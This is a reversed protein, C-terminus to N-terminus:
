GIKRIKDPAYEGRPDVGEEMVPLVLGQEYLAEIAVADALSIKDQGGNKKYQRRLGILNDLGSMEGVKVEISVGEAQVGELSGGRSERMNEVGSLVLSQVFLSRGQGKEKMRRMSRLMVGGVGEDFELLGGSKNRTGEPWFISLHGGGAVGDVLSSVQEDNFKKARNRLGEVLGRLELRGQITRRSAKTRRWMEEGMERILKPQYVFVLQMGYERALSRMAMGKERLSEVFPLRERDPLYKASLVAELNEREIDFHDMLDRGLRVPALGDSAFRHPFVMWMVSDGRKLAKGAEQLNGLSEADVEVKPQQVFRDMYRGLEDPRALLWLQYLRTLRLDEVWEPVLPEVRSGRLDFPEGEASTRAVM